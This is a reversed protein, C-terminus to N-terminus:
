RPGNLGMWNAVELKKYIESRRCKGILKEESLRDIIASIETEEM